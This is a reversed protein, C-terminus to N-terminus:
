FQESILKLWCNPLITVETDEGQIYKRSNREIEDSMWHDLFFKLLRGATLANEMKPDTGVIHDVLGFRTMESKIESFDVNAPWSYFSPVILKKRKTPEESRFAEFLALASLAAESAELFFDSFSPETIGFKLAYKDDFKTKGVPIGLKGNLVLSIEKEDSLSLVWAGSLVVENETVSVKSISIYDNNAIEYAVVSAYSPKM